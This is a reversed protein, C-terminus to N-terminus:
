MRTRCRCSRVFRKSEGRADHVNAFSVSRDDNTETLASV